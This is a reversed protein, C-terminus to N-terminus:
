KGAKKAMRAVLLRKVTAMGYEKLHGWFGRKEAQMYIYEPYPLLEQTQFIQEYKAFDKETMTNAHVVLTSAGEKQQLTREMRFSIPYFTMGRYLYPRQGFGDTMRTFGEAQLAKLTNDDYSHAPAMFFDTAIGHEELIRKGERVMRLQEEYPVGAFESFCNLPFLGGKQTTYIHHCGHMALIWGQEQLAKMQEWFDEREPDRSLNPDQNDPVIGILPKVHYKEMMARFRDFKEWDMDPTIDDMRIAIKM